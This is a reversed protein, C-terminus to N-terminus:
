IRVTETKGKQKKSIIQVYFEINAIQLYSNDFLVQPQYPVLSVNNYKTGNTSNLDIALWGKQPDFKIQLHRRSVQQYKGFIDTFDGETRGILVDRDIKIDLNLTKNILHLEGIESVSQSELGVAPAPFIGAKSKMTILPTGDQTCVKGKGPKHCKPCILIEQGCQDCFFSDDDITAKCYPCTIM